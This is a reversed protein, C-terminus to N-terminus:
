GPPPRRAAPRRGRASSRPRSGAKPPSDGRSWPCPAPREPDYRGNVAARRGPRRRTTSRKGSTATIAGDRDASIWEGVSWARRAAQSEIWVREEQLNQTM